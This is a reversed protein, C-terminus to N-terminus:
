AGGRNITITPDGLIVLNQRDIAALKRYVDLTLRDDTEGPTGVLGRLNGVEAFTEALAWGLPAPNEVTYLRSYLCRILTRTMEEKTIPNRLTWDFTPEVHGLFAALPNPAGLLARPLPAVRAGAVIAVQRLMAGGRQDPGVLPAYRSVGDSGASCCARSYWIAGGPTWGNLQDTDLTKRFTDVPSGLQAITKERDNLPGTMGHSTTCIFGPRQAKLASCLAACSAQAGTLLLSDKIEDDAAFQGALRAGVLKALLFTIDPMGWDASWVVPKDADGRDLAQWDSILADIYHGLGEEVTLDLRGVYASVNLNYQVSWPIETPRGYILLFQPIQGERVGREPTASALEDSTGDPYYRFLTGPPKSSQYRLVPAPLFKEYSRAALLRRIPEPADAGFAKDKAPVDPDDRLVLGWGVDKSRWDWPKPLHRPALLDARRGTIPDGVQEPFELIPSIEGDWANIRLETPREIM